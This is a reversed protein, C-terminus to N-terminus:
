IFSYVIVYVGTIWCLAALTAGLAVLSAIPADFFRPEVWAGYWDGLVRVYAGSRTVTVEDVAGAVVAADPQGITWGFAYLIVTAAAAWIPLLRHPRDAM